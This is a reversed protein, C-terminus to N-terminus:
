NDSDWHEDGVADDAFKQIRAALVAQHEPDLQQFVAELEDTGITEVNVQDVIIDQREAESMDEWRVPDPNPESPKSVPHFPRPTTGDPGPEALPKFGEELWEEAEEEDVYVLGGNCDSCGDGDCYTCAFVYEGPVLSM